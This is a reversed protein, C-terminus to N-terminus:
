TRIQEIWKKCVSDWSYKENAISSIIERNIRPKKLIDIVSKVFNTFEPGDELSYDIGFSESKAMQGTTGIKEAMAGSPTVIPICGYSMAKSLSICDIEPFRTPYIFVDAKRYLENVESQSLRGLDVFGPTKKILEKSEKVWEKTRPDNEMGGETIGAKFGYAWHIEANPVELRILPLARLLARICRDPSSTCVMLNMIKSNTITSNTVDGPYIGNPISIARPQKIIASHYNSKTM